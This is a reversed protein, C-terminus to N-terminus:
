GGRGDQERIARLLCRTLLSEDVGGLRRVAAQRAPDWRDAFARLADPPAVLPIASQILVAGHVRALAVGAAKVDGVVVEERDARQFCIEARGPGPGAVAQGDVVGAPLGCSALAVEILRGVVRACGRLDGRGLPGPFAGTLALDGPLHLLWGGGTPRGVVEVGRREAHKLLEDPPRQGRGLTLTPGVWGHVRFRWGSGPRFDPAELLARDAGMALGGAERGADVSKQVLM